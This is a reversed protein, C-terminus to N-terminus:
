VKSTIREPPIADGCTDCDPRAPFGIRNPVLKENLDRSHRLIEHQRIDSLDTRPMRVM